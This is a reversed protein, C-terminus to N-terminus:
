LYLSKGVLKALWAHLERALTIELGRLMTDLAEDGVQALLDIVYHAMNSSVYRSERLEFRESLRRRLEITTVLTIKGTIVYQAVLEAFTDPSIRILSKRAARTTLFIPMLERWVDSDICNGSPVQCFWSTPYGDACQGNTSSKHPDYLGLFADKIATFVALNNACKHLMSLHGMRHALIWATFPMYNERSTANHQYVVQISNPHSRTQDAQLQDLTETHNNKGLFFFRFDFPLADFSSMIKARGSPSEIPVFDDALFMGRHGKENAPAVKVLELASISM